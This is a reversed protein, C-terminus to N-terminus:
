RKLHFKKREAEILIRRLIKGSPSRPIKQVIEIERIAKYPAIKKNVFDALETTTTKADPRLVVFAKPIEGAIQDPKGIVACDMVAPHRILLSELEAPIITFGKYKIIEKKRDVLFIYSEKDIYALDGTRLWRDKVTETTERPNKWYGRMVQPGKVILEGIQLPQHKVAGTETDVIKCETDPYPIGVSENKIKEPPNHAVGPSAETLGYGQQVVLHFTDQVKKITEPPLPSGGSVIFRLSSLDYKRVLDSNNVMTTLAMPVTPWITVKHREILELAEKLSFRPMVVQSVGANIATAMCTNLGYIHFFPLHNLLIDSETIWMVNTAQIQHVVLNYHTLMVGKPSGTTGATYQLIALDEKPSIIEELRNLVEREKLTHETELLFNLPITESPVNEGTVIVKELQTRNKISAVVDFLTRNVVIIKAESDKLQYEAEDEKVMTNLPTVIAGAKTIGYVSVIYEPSNYELLAVVDGKRVGLNILGLALRDSLTNLRRFTVERTKIETEHIVAVRDGYRM